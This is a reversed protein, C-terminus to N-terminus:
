KQELITIILSKNINNTNFYYHKNNIDINLM